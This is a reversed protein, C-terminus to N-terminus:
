VGLIAELFDLTYKEQFAKTLKASVTENYTTNGLNLVLEGSFEKDGYDLNLGPYWVSAFYESKIAGKSLKASRDPLNLVHKSDIGKLSVNRVIMEGQSFSSTEFYVSLIYPNGRTATKKSNQKYVWTGHLSVTLGGGKLRATAQQYDFYYYRTCGQILGFTGFALVIFLAMRWRRRVAFKSRQLSSSYRM